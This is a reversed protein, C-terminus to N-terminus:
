DQLKNPLDRAIPGLISKALMEAFIKVNREFFSLVFNMKVPLDWFLVVTGFLTLKM